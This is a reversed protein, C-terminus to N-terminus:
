RLKQGGVIVVLCPQNSGLSKEAFPVCISSQAPLTPFTSILAIEASSEMFPM